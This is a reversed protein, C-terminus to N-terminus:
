IRARVFAVRQEVSAKPLEVLDYGLRRYSEAALDFVLRAEAWTQTRETDTRYIERWPPAIFVTQAYRFRRAAEDMHPPVPLGMKRLYSAPGPMAQDFFVPGTVAQAERYNRIDWMLGLEAFLLHDRPGLEGLATREKIIARSAEPAVTYGRARLAELLTTKGAGPGGTIVFFRDSGAPVITPM